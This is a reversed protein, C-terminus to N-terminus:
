LAMSFSPPNIKVQAMNGYLDSELRVTLQATTWDRIEDSVGTLKNWITTAQTSFKVGHDASGNITIYDGAKATESFVKCSMDFVNPKPTTDALTDLASENFSGSLRENLDCEAVKQGVYQAPTQDAAVVTLVPPADAVAAPPDVAPPAAEVVPADAITTPEPVPAAAPESQAAQALADAPNPAPDTEVPQPDVPPHDVSPPDAVPAPEIQAPAALTVHVRGAPKEIVPAPATAEPQVPGTTADAIPTPAAALDEPPLGAAPDIAAAAPAAATHIQGTACNNFATSPGSTPATDCTPVAHVFHDVLGAGVGAALASLGMTLLSGRSTMMKYNDRSWFKPVPKNAKALAKREHRNRMYGSGLGAIMAVSLVVAAVPAGAAMAAGVTFATTAGTATSVAAIALSKVGFMVAAGFVSSVISSGVNRRFEARQEPTSLYKQQFRTVLPLPKSDPMESRQTM